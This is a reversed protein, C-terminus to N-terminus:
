KGRKLITIKEVCAMPIYIREDFGDDGKGGRDAEMTAIAIRIKDALIVRGYIKVPLIDECPLLEEKYEILDFAYVLVIDNIKPINM